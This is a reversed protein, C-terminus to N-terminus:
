PDNRLHNKWGTYQSTYFFEAEKKALWKVSYCVFSFVAVTLFLVFQLTSLANLRPSLDTFITLDIRETM